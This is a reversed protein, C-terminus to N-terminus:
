LLSSRTIGGSLREGTEKGGQYFIVTPSSAVGLKEALPRNEQRFIKIFKVDDGYIESLPEFKAALAECPPCESSYFDLAVRGGQLVEAEYQSADIYKIKGSMYM